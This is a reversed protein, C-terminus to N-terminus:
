GHGAPLLAAISRRAPFVRTRVCVKHTIRLVRCNRVPTNSAVVFRGEWYDVTRATVLGTVSLRAMVDRRAVCRIARTARIKVCVAEAGRHARARVWIVIRACHACRVKAMWVLAELASVSMVRSKAWLALPTALFRSVLVVARAVVVAMPSAGRRPTESFRTRSSRPAGRQRYKGETKAPSAVMTQVSVMGGPKSARPPKAIVLPTVNPDVRAVVAGPLPLNYKMLYDYRVDFVGLFPPEVRAADKVMRSFSRM